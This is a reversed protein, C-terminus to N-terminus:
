KPVSFESATQRLLVPAGPSQPFARRATRKALPTLAVTLLVVYGLGTSMVVDPLTTSTLMMVQFCIMAQMTVTPLSKPLRLVLIQLGQLFLGTVLGGIFIGLWGFDAWLTGLYAGNAHCSEIAVELTRLRCVTNAVPFSGEPYLKAIWPFARGNLFDHYRPFYDFYSLLM